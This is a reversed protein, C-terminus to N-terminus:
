VLPMVRRVIEVTQAIILDSPARESNTLCYKGVCVTFCLRVGVEKGSCGGYFILKRRSPSKKCGNSIGEREDEEPPISAVTTRLSYSLIPVLYCKPCRESLTSHPKHPGGLTPLKKAGLQGHALFHM